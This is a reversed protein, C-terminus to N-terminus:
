RWRKKKGPKYKCKKGDSDPDKVMKPKPDLLSTQPEEPADILEETDETANILDETDEVESDGFSNVAVFKQLQSMREKHGSNHAMCQLFQKAATQTGRLLFDLEKMDKASPYSQMQLLGVAGATSVVTGTKVDMAVGPSAIQKMEEMEASLKTYMEIYEKKKKECKELEELRWEDLDKLDKVKNTMENNLALLATETTNVQMILDMVYEHIQNLQHKAELLQSSCADQSGSQKSIFSKVVEDINKNSVNHAGELGLTKRNLYLLHAKCSRSRTKSRAMLEEATTDEMVESKFLVERAEEAAEIVKAADVSLDGSAFTSQLLCAPESKGTSIAETLLFAALMVVIAKAM